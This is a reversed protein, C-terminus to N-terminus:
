LLFSFVFLVFPPGEMKTLFIQELVSVRPDRVSFTGCSFALANFTLSPVESSSLLFDLAREHRDAVPCIYGLSQIFFEPQVPSCLYFYSNIKFM